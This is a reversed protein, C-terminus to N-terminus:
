PPLSIQARLFEHLGTQAVPEPLQLEEQGPDPIRWSQESSDEGPGEARFCRWLCQLTQKSHAPHQSLCSLCCERILHM